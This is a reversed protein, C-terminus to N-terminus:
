NISESYHKIHIKLQKRHMYIGIAPYVLSLVDSCVAYGLKTDITARGELLEVDPPFMRLIYIELIIREIADVAVANEVNRYPRSIGITM